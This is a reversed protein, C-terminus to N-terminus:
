EQVEKQGLENGFELDNAGCFSFAYDSTGKKTRGWFYGIIWKQTPHAFVTNAGTSGFTQLSGKGRRDTAGVPVCDWFYIPIDAFISRFWFSHLSVQWSAFPAEYVRGDGLQARLIFECEPHGPTGIVHFAQISAYNRFLYGLNKVTRKQGTKPGLLTASM